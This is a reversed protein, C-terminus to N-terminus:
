KLQIRLTSNLDLNLLEAANGKAIAIELHGISNFIALLEGNGVENYYRSIRTIENRRSQVHIAFPRGQAFEEFMPKTINTIANGYSDIYVIHGSIYNAEVIPLIHVSRALQPHPTGLQAPTKGRAIALAAPIFVSLCVFSTYDQAPPLEYADIPQGDFLLAFLGNDTGIFFQGEFEAVLHPTAPSYDSAVDVIHISGKPFFPYVQKLVFAAQAFNYPPVNHAIDVVQAGPLLGLVAGKVAGAYYDLKNWDTTLTLISM